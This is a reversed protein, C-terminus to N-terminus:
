NHLLVITLEPESPSNCIQVIAIGCITNSYNLIANKIKTLNYFINANVFVVNHCNFGTRRYIDLLVVGDPHPVEVILMGYLSSRVTCDSHPTAEYGSGLPILVLSYSTTSVKEPQAAWDGCWGAANASCEEASVGGNGPCRSWSVLSQDCIAVAYYTTKITQM